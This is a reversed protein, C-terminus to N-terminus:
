PLTIAPLEPPHVERQGALHRGTLGNVWAYFTQWSDFMAGHETQYIAEQLETVFQKQEGFREKLARTEYAYSAANPLLLRLSSKHNM